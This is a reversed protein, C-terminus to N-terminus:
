DVIIQSAVQGRNYERKYDRAQNLSCGLESAIEEDSMGSLQSLFSEVDKGQRALETQLYNTYGWPEQKMMKEDTTM